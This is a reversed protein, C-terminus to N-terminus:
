GAVNSQDVDDGVEQDDGLVYTPVSNIPLTEHLPFPALPLPLCIYGMLEVGLAQGTATVLVFPESPEADASLLGSASISGSGAVVSWTFTIEIPLAILEAQLQVTQRGIDITGATVLIISADHIVCVYASESKGGATVTIPVVDLAVGIKKAPATFRKDRNALSSQTLTGLAAPVATWTKALGPMAGASLDCSAGAGIFQIRPNINVPRRLVTVLASTSYGGEYATVKVRLQLGEIQEATPATYVGTVANIAGAFSIDGPINEVKWRISTSTSNVKFSHQTSHAM